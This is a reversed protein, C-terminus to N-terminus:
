SGPTVEGIVRQVIRKRLRFATRERQRQISEADLHAAWRLATCWGDLATECADAVVMLPGIRRSELEDLYDTLSRLYPVPEFIPRLWSSLSGANVAVRRDRLVAMVTAKFERLPLVTAETVFNSWQEPPLKALYYSAELSIEGRDIAQRYVKHQTLRALGLMRRVWGPGKNLLQCVEAQTMGKESKLLRRIQRAYESPKTRPRMANATVQMALVIKDPLDFKVICPAASIQAQRAASTRWRGDVVEYKEAHRQRSSLRVCISNLFGHKALSDRLEVYEACRQNVQRLVLPPDVLDTLPILRFEDQM